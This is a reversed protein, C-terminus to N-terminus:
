FINVGNAGFCLLWNTIEKKTLGGFNVLAALLVKTLIQANSGKVIHEILLL